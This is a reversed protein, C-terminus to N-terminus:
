TKTTVKLQSNGIMKTLETELLNSTQLRIILTTHTEVKIIEAKITNTKKSLHRSGTEQM